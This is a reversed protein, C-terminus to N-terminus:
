IHSPARPESVIEGEVWSVEVAATSPTTTRPAEAEFTSAPVHEPSSTSPLLPKDEDGDVGQLGEDVFISEEMEKDGARKFVDRPCPATEDFTVDCSEVVTNTALNYVRSRIAEILKDLEGRAAGSSLIAWRQMFFILKYLIANPSPVLKNRFVCDNRNLWLTWCAVGFLFFVRGNDKHGRELLFEDNFEKVSKLARGWGVGEKIVSWVFSALPCTFILHDV